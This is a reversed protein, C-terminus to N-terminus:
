SSPAGVETRVDAAMPLRLVFAGAEYALDGGHARALGRAIPLGLGSGGRNDLSVFREFVQEEMGPTVGRGDDAVRVEVVGDRNALTVAVRRRAHRRANDLLNAVIERVADADLAPQEHLEAAEVAIDLDPALVRARDAEDCCLAVLDCATPKVEEGQDLRAMKLLGTMLRSARSTERVMDALLRDRESPAPGRLLTEACARIGAMPTRLQHAADALFRRSHAESARAEELAVELAVLTSDLTSALWRQETIDRAISSAGIVKGADDRVPSVTLSIEIPPGHKPLRITEHHPVGQGRRVTALAQEVEGHREPPVLVTIHRGVVEPPTYGYMREAGRNWSVITGDLDKGIIADDSSDVIAALRYRAEEAERRETLDHVFANITRDAGEGTAWMILEAAFATGDARQAVTEVRRGQRRREGTIRLQELRGRHEDRLESAFLAEFADRGMAEERALGFLREAGDNWEAIRGDLDVAVFADTATDIIKRSREELYRSRAAAERAEHISAELADLMEDYAAAMQGMRTHPRDPHLREGREGAAARRAAAAMKELPRLAVEAVRLLLLTALALGAVTGVAELVVLRRLADAVGGRRAEVVVVTGDGLTVRRTVRPQRPDDGTPALNDGLRPSPPRALHTRGDGGRVTARLGLETLRVALQQPNRGAAEERVLAVREALVRDLTADLSSKLNLYVFADVAVLVVAVVAVGAAVVRVRLSPTNV